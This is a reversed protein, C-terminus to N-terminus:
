GAMERKRKMWNSLVTEFGGSSSVAATQTTQLTAASGEWEETVPPSPKYDSLKNEFRKMDRHYEGALATEEYEPHGQLFIQPTGSHPVFLDVGAQPGQTLVDYGGAQLDSADLDNWRSHAVSYRQPMGALLAHANVATQTFIGFKKRPLRRREIGSFHLVAAHAALCSFLSPINAAAAWDFLEALGSWFIEDRLSDRVPEAGSFLLADPPTARLVELTMYLKAIRAAAMEGRPIAPLTVCRFDIRARPCAAQMLRSFRQETIALAADAMNNVLVIRLTADADAAAELPATQNEAM